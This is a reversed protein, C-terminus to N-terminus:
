EGGQLQISLTEDEEWPYGKVNFTCYIGDSNHIFEFKRVYETAPHVLLAETITREIESEVSERDPEESLSDFETGINDSYALCSMRETVANKQCWQMYADRGTSPIMRGAGDRLFDGTEYDFYVSACYREDYEPNDPIEPLDFVPFLQNEAM